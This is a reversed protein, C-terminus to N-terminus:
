EQNSEFVRWFSLHALKRAEFVMSLTESYGQNIVMPAEETYNPHIHIAM